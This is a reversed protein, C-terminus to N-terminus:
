KKFESEDLKELFKTEIVEVEMFKEGDHKVLVKKPVPIGTKEDKGYELTIREETIEKGTQAELTRHEVKVLRSTEKDFFLSIDKHGKSKILIGEAPKDNVKVEGLSALEMNKDRTLAALRAARMMYRADELAKKINDTIPVEQGNAEISVKEGNVLTMLNLKQGAVDLEMSEKLKDPLMYAIEQTFSAEGVMPITIKGKNKAQGAQYKNLAEEGGHAKVAKLLIAQADDAARTAPVLSVFVAASLLPLLTRRM